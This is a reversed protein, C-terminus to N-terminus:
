IKASINKILSSSFTNGADPARPYVADGYFLYYTSYIDFTMMILKSSQRRDEFDIVSYEEQKGHGLKWKGRWKL